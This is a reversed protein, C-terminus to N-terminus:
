DELTCNAEKLERTSPIYSNPFHFYKNFWFNVVTEGVLVKTGYFKGELPLLECPFENTALNKNTSNISLIM